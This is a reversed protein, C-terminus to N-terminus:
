RSGDRCQMTHNPRHCVKLLCQTVHGVSNVVLAKGLCSSLIVKHEVKNYKYTNTPLHTPPKSPSQGCDSWTRVQAVQAVRGAVGGTGHGEMPFEVGAIPSSQESAINCIIVKVISQHTRNRSRLDSSCDKMCMFQLQQALYQHNQAIKDSKEFGFITHPARSGLQFYIFFSGIQFPNGSQGGKLDRDPQSWTLAGILALGVM